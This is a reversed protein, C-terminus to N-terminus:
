KEEIFQNRLQGCAANIDAGMEKRITCTIHESNLLNLFRTIRRQEPRQWGKEAVPNVPILNVSARKFKLLNALLKADKALDNVEKILIYEYTVDRGSASAYSEAAALVKIFPYAKNIPMLENRIEERVSHLSIALNIPHGLQQMKIIGPIIGCTSVTMNRYSINLVSHLFDLAGFVNEFNLMPEGSGMVVVRSVKQGLPRLIGNCLYIQALIEEKTLSRECGTLGSACFACHMDCGVQSSVCVSYGYDHHMLVTEVLSGDQLQLLLKSTIGDESDLRKLIKIEKPLITFSAGLAKRDLKSINGMEEFDYVFKQHMWQFVQTARYSPLGLVAFQKQLEEISLAFIEQM